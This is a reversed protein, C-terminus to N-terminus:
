DMFQDTFSNEVSIGYEEDILIVYQKREIFIRRVKDEMM